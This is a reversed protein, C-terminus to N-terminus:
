SAEPDAMRTRSAVDDLSLGKAERAARLRGGISVDQEPGLEDQGNM